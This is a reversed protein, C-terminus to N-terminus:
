IKEESIDIRYLLNLFDNFNKQLLMAVIETLFDLLDQPDKCESFQYELGILLFDKQLQNALKGYLLESEINNILAITNNIIPLKM